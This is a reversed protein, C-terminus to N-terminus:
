HPAKPMKGPKTHDLSKHHHHHYVPNMCAFISPKKPKAAFLFTKLPVRSKTSFHRFQNYQPAKSISLEFREHLKSLTKGVEAQLGKVHDLGAQLEKAVKNNEQQMNIVEGQFKAAQYPTFRADENEGESAKTVRTIEEQISCLSAFRCRLEGQLHRNHEVWVQLETNLERLKKDTPVSEAPRVTRDGSAGDSDEDNKTEMFKKAEAQLEKFALSFKQIQHYATSFRLWFDLNEELLTDIDARFKDELPSSEFLRDMNRIKVEQDDDLPPRPDSPELESDFADAILDQLRPSNEQHPAAAAAAAKKKLSSRQLSEASFLKKRLAKIEEDKIANACRLEQIQQMLEEVGKPETVPPETSPINDSIRWTDLQDDQVLTEPSQLKESLNNLSHCAEDFHSQVVGKEKHLSRELDLIRQLQGEVQTLRENLSSPDVNSKKKDEEVSRLHKHLEDTEARLTLIQAAQSSVTIELRIIKEVLADIKEVLEAVSSESSMEFLSKVKDCIFQLDFKDINTSGVEDDDTVTSSCTADDAAAEEGAGGKLSRYIARAVKIRESELRAERVSKKQQAHLGALTDECSKLATAAMLARAEDDEIVSGVNFEDQLQSIEDQMETMQREIDWYKALGKEYSGRFFEKETQLVLISKQLRDIEQQAKEPTVNSNGRRHKPRPPPGAAAAPPQAEPRKIRSSLRPLEPPPKPLKAADPPPPNTDISSHTSVGDIGEDDDDDIMTPVQDPFATAITNNAKHLEGSIRDYRDALAKYARYAEEVSNILEPRRRFYMEAKKAFSDADEDILKIMSKVKEEM